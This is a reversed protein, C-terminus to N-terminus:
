KKPVLTVHFGDPDIFQVGGEAKKANVEPPHNIGHEVKYGHRKAVALIQDKTGDINYAIHDIMPTKRTREDEGPQLTIGLEGVTLKCKSGTDGSVKLGLLGAYFDRTKAFNSVRYSLHNINVTKLTGEDAAGPVAGLAAASAAVSLSRALERRSIRGAEFKKLLDYVIHEM